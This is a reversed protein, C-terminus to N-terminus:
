PKKFNRVDRVASKLTEAYNLAQQETMAITSETKLYGQTWVQWTLKLRTVFANWFDKVTWDLEQLYPNDIDYRKKVSETWHDTKTTIYVNVNIGTDEAEVSFDIHHDPDGCQCAVKYFKADGYEGTKMIGEVAVQADTPMPTTM